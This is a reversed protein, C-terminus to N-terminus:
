RWSPWLGRQHDGLSEDLRCPCPSARLCCPFAVQIGPGPRNVRHCLGESMAVLGVSTETPPKPTGLGLDNMRRELVAGILSERSGADKQM